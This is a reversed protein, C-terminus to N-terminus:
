MMNAALHEELDKKNSNKGAKDKKLDLVNGPYTVEYPDQDNEVVWVSGPNAEDLISTLGKAVSEVKQLNSGAIEDAFEQAFRDNIVNRPAESLLTTDTLGPCVAFIKVKTRQFHNGCGLAKTFGCIGFQTMTHLPYGSSPIIGLISGLNVITGGYGGSSKAMYQMGLLTGVVCGAMNTQLQKEWNTDDMIGASNVVIDPVDHFQIAKRYVDDLEKAKSVDAEFFLVKENGFEKMLKETATEGVEANIDVISIHHMGKILFERAIAYGIGSAGGNIIATRDEINLTENEEEEREEDEDRHSLRSLNLVAGSNRISQKSLNKSLKRLFFM